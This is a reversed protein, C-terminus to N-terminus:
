VGEPAEQPAPSRRIKEMIRVAWIGVEYLLCLPGAMLMQNFVDPTPTLIAAVVFNL